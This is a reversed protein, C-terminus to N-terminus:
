RPRLAPDGEHERFFEVIPGAYEPFRPCRLGHAALLEDARRTDFRVPHNLYRISERPAGEFMERVARFRLSEEVAKAPVRLRPERGAYERALVQTLEKATLPDPDVLHLTERNASEDLSLAAIADVVFDVPVVNFPAGSRGFQPIPSRTRVARSITRLIYYPGDFKQTEGTRSDGVVIAPRYITAPVVGALERVWVEAQFKTSEYHNKFEQGFLLEHEYVVGRRVGAVYATSVYQLGRFSSCARCFDLVNGTGDVNVRQAVELPVSLDYIAALHHVVEVSEALRRYDADDLGLRRDGIDGVVLEIREADIAEAASRAADAMRGEVIATLQLSEDDALLRRVLRRAIFGPFGTILM